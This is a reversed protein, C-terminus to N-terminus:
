TRQAETMRWSVSRPSAGRRAWSAAAPIRARAASGTARFRRATSRGRAAGAAPLVAAAARARGPLHQRRLPGISGSSTRRRSCRGTCSRPSSTRRTSARAHRDGRRRVSRAERRDLRREHQYPAYQVFISMVHKGPRRWTRSRDDVPDRHGHVPQQSFEGYKADDYARELYDVSPSISFRAACPASRHGPLCTFDPLESLALNVKGSSGRFQFRRVSTSSDDPLEKREVLELFTRRPDLGSVVIPARIEEGNELVVGTARGGKVLVQEVPAETRIEAGFSARPARSPRASRATAARRSAGPASRATSRAWTTICCCTRRAPRARARPVHRHHREGVEDGQAARVRVVRRSLRRSSMTMLKYLAHFREAGLSRFHGGLKLM